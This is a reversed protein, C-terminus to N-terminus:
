DQKAAPADATAPPEYGKAYKIKPKYEEFDAGFRRQVAQAVRGVRLRALANEQAVDTPVAAPRAEIIQNISIYGDGPVIFIEGPPLKALNRAIEDGLTMTDMEGSMRRFPTNTAQLVGIVEELTNLPQLKGLLDATPPRLTRLQEVTLIKRESYLEPHEAIYRQAEEQSPSPVSRVIHKRWTQVLLDQRQREALEVFEPTKDIKHKKAAEALATRMVIQQLAAQEVARRQKPDSSSFGGLEARLQNATIERGDVTAVVQGTPPADKSCGAVATLAISILLARRLKM